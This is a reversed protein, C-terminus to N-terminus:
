LVAAHYQWHTPDTNPVSTMAAPSAGIYRYQARYTFNGAPTTLAKTLPYAGSTTDDYVIDRPFFIQGSLADATWAGRFKSSGEVTRNVVDGVTLPRIYPDFGPNAEIVCLPIISESAAPFPDTSRGGSGASSFMRGMVRAYYSAGDDIIEIWFAAQITGDVDMSTDNLVIQGFTGAVTAITPDYIVTATMSDLTGQTALAAPQAFSDGNFFALDNVLAMKLEWNGTSALPSMGDLNGYESFTKWKSRGGFVFDRFQFTKWTDTGNASNTINYFTAPIITASLAGGYPGFNTLDLEATWGLPGMKVAAQADLTNVQDPSRVKVTIKPSYFCNLMEVLAERISKKGFLTGPFRQGQRNENKAM